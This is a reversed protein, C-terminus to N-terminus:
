LTLGSLTAVGIAADRPSRTVRHRRAPTEENTWAESWSSESQSALATNVPYATISGTTNLAASPQSSM